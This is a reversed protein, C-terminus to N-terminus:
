DDDTGYDPNNAATHGQMPHWFGVVFFAFSQGDGAQHDTDDSQKAPATKKGAQLAGSNEAVLAM